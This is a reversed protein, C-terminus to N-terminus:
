KELKKRKSILLGGLGAGFLLMTAPEPVPSVQASDFYSYTYLDTSYPQGSGGAPYTQALTNSKLFVTIETGQAVAEATLLVFAADQGYLGTSDVAGWIIDSSLPNTGGYPDIGVAMSASGLGSFNSGVSCRKSIGFTYAQGAEAGFLHQFIYTDVNFSGFNPRSFFYILGSKAGDNVYVGSDNTSYVGAATGTSITSVNWGDPSGGTWSEFGPNQLAVDARTNGCTLM